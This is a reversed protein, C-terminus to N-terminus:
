EVIEFSKIVYVASLESIAASPRIVAYDTLGSVDTAVTAVTGITLGMPYNGGLGSTMVTYGTRVTSDAPLYTLRLYGQKMMEFSGEAVATEGNEYISVGMSFDTDLITRVTSWGVGTEEVIGVLYGAETVVCDYAEIGYETGKSITFESTWSSAGWAVVTVAEFEFERHRERLGLLGRLRENESSLSESDRVTEQLEALQIKLQENEEELRTVRDSAAFQQEALTALSNMLARGPRLLTNVAGTLIFARGSLLLTLGTMVLATVAAAAIIKLGRRKEQDKM